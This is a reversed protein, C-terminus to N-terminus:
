HGCERPSEGDDDHGAQERSGHAGNREIVRLVGRQEHAALSAM